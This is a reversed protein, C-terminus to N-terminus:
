LDHELHRIVEGQYGRVLHRRLLLPDVEDPRVGAPEAPEALRATVRGEPDRGLRAEGNEAEDGRDIGEKREARVAPPDDERIPTGAGTAVGHLDHRELELGAPPGLDRAQRGHHRGTRRFAVRSVRAEGAVVGHEEAGKGVGVARV